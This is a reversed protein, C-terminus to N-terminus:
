WDPPAVELAVRLVRQQAARDRGAEHTTHLAAADGRCRLVEDSVFRLELPRGDAGVDVLAREALQVEHRELGRDAVAPRECDHGDYLRSFPM